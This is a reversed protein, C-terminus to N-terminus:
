VLLSAACGLLLLGMVANTFREYRCFLRQLTSGMAAWALIGAGGILSLILIFTVVSLYSDYYPLIFSSFATMGYIMIKINIFQLVFGYIFGAGSGANEGDATKASAVKWALWVIYLCGIYKMVTILRESITSLSFAAVGCLVMVCFFGSLIGSVVPASGRFGHRSGSSLALINNPGPTFATIFTFALFASLVTAPMNM